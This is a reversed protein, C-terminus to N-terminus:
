IERFPIKSHHINELISLSLVGDYEALNQLVFGQMSQYSLVPERTPGIIIERLTNKIDLDIDWYPILSHAGHRFRANTNKKEPNTYKRGPNILRWEREESFGKSKIIPALFLAREAFTMEGLPPKGFNPHEKIKIVPANNILEKAILKHQQEEYVCQVLYCNESQCIASYLEKGSFGLSYGNGIKCYGRWQSLQDGVETFSAIGLNFTEISSLSKLMLDLEEDTREKESGNQQQYIENRFYNFALKLESCDNLYQAKTAWISNSTIIGVLGQSNTYHYLLKPVPTHLIQSIINEHLM